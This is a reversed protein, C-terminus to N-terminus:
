GLTIKASQVRPVVERGSLDCVPNETHERNIGMFMTSEVGEITITSGEITVVAYLPDNYIVVNRMCRYKQCLEEPFLNHKIPLWDYCVSNMDLYCVDDLIRMYDRHHHGNICMIVSHKKRRNAENIIRRVQEQNKVGDAKREFSSHSILICPYPSDAITKELWELQEPPVYDRYAQNAYYNGLNYHIYEGNVCYYNTDTIIMRYGSRDFYYYGNPMNYRRLVEQYDTHDTDHNGLAHYSPIHFDNYARVYEEVTSPGHCFDGAHIMFECNEEEARHQLHRLDEWTGTMLVGPFHHLDAFLFFKM